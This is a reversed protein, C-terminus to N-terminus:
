DIGICSFSQTISENDNLLLVISNNLNNMTWREDNMVQGDICIAFFDIMKLYEITAQHCCSTSHEFRNTIMDFICCIFSIQPLGISQFNHIIIIKWSCNVFKIPILNKENRKQNTKLAFQQIMWKILKINQWLFQNGIFGFTCFLFFGFKFLKKTFM